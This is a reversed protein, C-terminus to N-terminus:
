GTLIKYQYICLQRTNQETKTKRHTILHLLPPTLRGKNVIGLKNHLPCVSLQNDIVVENVRNEAM